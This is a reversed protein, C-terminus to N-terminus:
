LSGHNEEIGCPFPSPRHHAADVGSVLPAIAELPFRASSKFVSPGRAAPLSSLIFIKM